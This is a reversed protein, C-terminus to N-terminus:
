AAGCGNSSCRPWGGVADTWASRFGAAEVRDTFAASTFQAGQNTNFIEPRGADNPADLCFSTDMINSCDQSPRDIALRRLL